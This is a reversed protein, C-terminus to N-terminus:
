EAIVFSNTDHVKQCGYGLRIVYSHEQTGVNITIKQWVKFKVSLTHYIM